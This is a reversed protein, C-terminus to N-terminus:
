ANRDPGSLMFEAGETDAVIALLGFMTPYPSLLVKGGLELVQAATDQINGSAFFCPMWHPRQVPNHKNLVAFSAVAHKGYEGIDQGNTSFMQYGPVAKAPESFHWPVPPACRINGFLAAYFIKSAENDRSFQESWMLAGPDTWVGMGILSGAQWLGFPAGAADEAIATRALSQDPVAPKQLLKGGAADLRELSLDLDATALYTIWAASPIGPPLGAQLGAVAIGNKRAIQLNGPAAPETIDWGFLKGYFNEAAAPDTTHLSVWTPTGDPQVSSRLMKM